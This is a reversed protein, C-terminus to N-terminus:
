KYAEAIKRAEALHRVIEARASTDKVWEFRLAQLSDFWGVARDYEHPPTLPEPNFHLEMEDATMGLQLAKALALDPAPVHGENALKRARQFHDFSLSEKFAEVGPVNEYVKAVDCWRRLTEGSESLVPFEVGSNIARSCEQLFDARRLEVSYDNTQWLRNIKDGIAFQRLTTAKQLRAM